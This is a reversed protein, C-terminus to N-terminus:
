RWEQKALIFAFPARRDAAIHMTAWDRNMIHQRHRAEYSTDPPTERAKDVLKLKAASKM